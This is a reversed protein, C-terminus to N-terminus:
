SSRSAFKMGQTRPLTGTFQRTLPWRRRSSQHHLWPATIMTWRCKRHRCERYRPHNDACLCDKSCGERRRQARHCLCDASTLRTKLILVYDAAHRSDPRVGNSAASGVMTFAALGNGSGSFGLGL